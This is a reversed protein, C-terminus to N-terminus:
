DGSEDKLKMYESDRPVMLQIGRETAWNEHRLMATYREGKTASRSEKNGSKSWSLRNGYKDCGLFKHTFLEHADDKNFKRTGYWEGKSNIMLPMTAGNQAMWVATKEMWARWLRAMGWKGTDASKTSVILHGKKELESLIDKAVQRKNGQTLHYDTM